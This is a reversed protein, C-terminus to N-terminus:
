SASQCRCKFRCNVTSSKVSMSWDYSSIREQTFKKLRFDVFTGPFNDNAYYNSGARWLVNCWSLESIITDKKEWIFRSKFKVHATEIIKVMIWKCNKSKAHSWLAVIPLERCTLLLKQHRTIAEVLNICYTYTM